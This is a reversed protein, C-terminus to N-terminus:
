EERDATYDLCFYSFEGTALLHGPEDTIDVDVLCTVRGRHRVRGIAYITGGPTNRVFNLSGNQTVYRRGDTHAAVGAADDALTYLAGGHVMNYPNKSEPRIELRFVVRDDEVADLEMHNYNTFANKQRMEQKLQELDAM